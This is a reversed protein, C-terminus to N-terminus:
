FVVPMDNASRSAGVILKSGPDSYGRLSVKAGSLLTAMEGFRKYHQPDLPGSIEEKADIFRNASLHEPLTDSIM